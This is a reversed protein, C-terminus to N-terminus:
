GRKIHIYDRVLGRQYLPNPPNLGKAKVVEPEAPYGQEVSITM